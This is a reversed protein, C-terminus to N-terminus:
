ESIDVLRILSLSRSNQNADDRTDADMFDFDYTKYNIDWANDGGDHTSGTQNRTAYAQMWYIAGENFYLSNLLPANKWDVLASFYTDGFAYQLSGDFKRRGFGTAGIPFFVQRADDSNYAFAGRMGKNTRGDGGVDSHFCGTAIDFDTATTIAGDAYLVGYLKDITVRTSAADKLTRYQLYTPMYGNSSSNYTHDNGSLIVATSMFNNERATGNNGSNSSIRYTGRATTYLDAVATGFLNRSHSLDGEDNPSQDDRISPTYEGRIFLSGGDCPHNVEENDDYLNFTHWRPANADDSIRLPEYGQRVM